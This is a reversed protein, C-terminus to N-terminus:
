TPPPGRGIHPRLADVQILPPGSAAGFSTTRFQRCRVRDRDAQEVM